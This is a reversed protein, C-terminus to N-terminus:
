IHILSLTLKDQHNTVDPKVPYNFDQDTPATNSAAAQLVAIKNLFLDKLFANRYATSSKDLIRAKSASASGEIQGECLCDVILGFDISKLVGSELSADTIERREFAM